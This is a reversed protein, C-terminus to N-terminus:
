AGMLRDLAKRAKRHEVLRPRLSARAERDLKTGEGVNLWIEDAQGGRMLEFSMIVGEPAAAGPLGARLAARYLPLEVPGLPIFPPHFEQGPSDAALGLVEGAAGALGGTGAADVATSALKILSKASPKRIIDRLKDRLRRLALLPHKLFGVRGSAAVLARFEATELIEWASAGTDRRADIIYQGHDIVAPEYSCVLRCIEALRFRAEDTFQTPDVIAVFGRLTSASDSLIGAGQRTALLVEYLFDEAFMVFADEPWKQAQHELPRLYDRVRALV